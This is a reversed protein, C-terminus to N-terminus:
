SRNGNGQLRERSSPWNVFLMGLCVLGLSVFLALGMREGLILGGSVFVGFVPTFFTFAHLLSVPYRHILHFWALYSLFAVIICQYALSIGVALSFGYWLRDELIISFFLLLPASFALQYFLTQIPLARKTLFRKIYLTTSAWFAGAVLVLLDGTLTSLTTKGWDRAFLIVVGVFALSLGIAKVASLRDGPLLFHAGLAVLFPATYVFIYTRSALTYNLGLYICGFEAGFLLGVVLGHGFLGREPFLPIGKIRMWLFLCLGAVVSRICAMFLPAVGIAAIKVAAYSAGWLMSLVLLLLIPRWELQHREM